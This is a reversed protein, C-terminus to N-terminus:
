AKDTTQLFADFTKRKQALLSASPVAKKFIELADDDTLIKIAESIAAIEADRMKARTDREKGKNACSTSLDKLYTQGNSLEEKADELADKNNSISVALTGARKEKSIIAETAAKIEEQKASKLEGYGLANTKETTTAAELDKSM